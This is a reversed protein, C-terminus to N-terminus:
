VLLHQNGKPLSVPLDRSAPHSTLSWLVVPRLSQGACCCKPSDRAPALAGTPSRSSPPFSCMADGRVVLVMTDIKGNSQSHPVNESLNSITWTRFIKPHFHILPSALPLLIRPPWVHTPMGTFSGTPLFMWSSSIYINSVESFPKSDSSALKHVLPQLM